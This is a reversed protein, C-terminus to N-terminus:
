CFFKNKKKSEKRLLEYCQTVFRLLHYCNTVALEYCKTVNRFMGYCNTVGSAYCKTVFRLM